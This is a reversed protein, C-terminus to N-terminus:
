VDVFWRQGSLVRVAEPVPRQVTRCGFFTSEAIGRAGFRPLNSFRKITIDDTVKFAFRFDSPVQGVLERLYKADPFKYYAADVCVTKFVEAYESLCNREFRSEAFKGRYVYRAEDYLKGRWGPYKWSSTGVYVGVRALESLRAGIIQRDFAM